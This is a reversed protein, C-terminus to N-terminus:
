RLVLEVRRNLARGSETANSRIPALYGVGRAELRDAAVGRDILAARVAGARRGSLRINADLGGTNDSHGVIAVKLDPNASLMAAMEDLATASEPTLKAGGPAFALGAVAVHGFELLRDILPRAVQFPLSRQVEGEDEPEPAAAQGDDGDLSPAPLEITRETPRVTVVQIFIDGIVDSVLVSVYGSPHKRAMSLQAFRAVDMRMAPPAVLEAGFRFDFGGCARGTCDLLRHYGAARLARRYSEIIDGVGRGPEEIQWATRLVEGTVAVTAPFEGGFPGIPLEYSDSNAM